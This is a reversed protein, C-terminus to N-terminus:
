VLLESLEFRYPNNYIFIEKQCLDSESDSNRVHCTVFHSKSTRSHLFYFQM